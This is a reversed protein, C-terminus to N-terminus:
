RDSEGTRRLADLWSQAADYDEDTMGPLPSLPPDIWQREYSGLFRLGAGSRRLAALADGVRADEIHGTCDLLFVYRGLGEGTPRSEIKTLNIGRVSFATLVNLLAGVQDHRIYVALSTVDNGTRAAPASPRRVLLFRTAAGPNDGIDYDLVPLGHDEATHPACVCADAAGTEAATAGAATSLVEVTDADPLERRLYQRVQALAHPHSAVTAIEGRPRSSALVFTVPHVAEASVLLPDGHLLQDITVNVTGEHSNEVPVFGADLNGSRVADLVDPISPMPEKESGSAAPMANLAAETFTGRPGLYGIKM